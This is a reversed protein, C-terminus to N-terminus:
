KFLGRHQINLNKELQESNSFLAETSLMILMIGKYNHQKHILYNQLPPSGLDFIIYMSTKISTRSGELFTVGM